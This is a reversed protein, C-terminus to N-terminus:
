RLLIIISSYFNRFNSLRHYNSRYMATSFLNIGLASYIFLLLFILSMINTIQPIIYVFAGLIVKGFSKMLRFVRLIRFGRVISAATSIDFGIFISLIFGIDTGLVILFDFRNWSSKFYHFGLGILKLILEINFILSFVYNISELIREYTNSMRAYRMSMILTNLLICVMIFIEFYEHNVCVYIKKRFKNKPEPTQIRLSQRIMIHQIEIWKKQDPTILLGKGGIEESEKIKNFNDIIVGVFLNIIFLSGIVMFCIFYILMWVQYDKQPQKNIGRSDIGSNMVTIWGETTTMQFLALMANLVNDFNINSNDWSGGVSLCNEKTTVSDLLTSSLGQCSYFAGKFFDVGMIAFILLFLVCILLVNTIAPISSILANIVIKLGENRSIMRLPRLARIARLSKLSNLSEAGSNSATMTFGFDVLSSVVVIFDLINWTNLIYPDIGPFNNYFFGLAIIKLIAEILFLFTFVYDLETLIKFFINNPNSLPTDICLLVSSSLILTIIVGEFVKSYRIYKEETLIKGEIIQLNDINYSNELNKIGFDESNKMAKEKNILNDSGVVLLLLFKRINWKEHFIFLSSSM